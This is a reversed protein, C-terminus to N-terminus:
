TAPQFNINQHLCFWTASTVITVNLPVVPAVSLFIKSRHKKMITMMLMTSQQLLPSSLLFYWILVLSAIYIIMITLHIFNPDGDTKGFAFFLAHFFGTTCKVTLGSVCASTCVKHKQHHCPMCLMYKIYTHQPPTTVPSFFPNELCHQHHDHDNFGDGSNFKNKLSIYSPVACMMNCFIIEEKWVACQM